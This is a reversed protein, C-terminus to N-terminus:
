IILWAALIDKRLSETVYTIATKKKMFIERKSNFYCLDNNATKSSNKFSSNLFCILQDFYHEGNANESLQSFYKKSNIKKYHM